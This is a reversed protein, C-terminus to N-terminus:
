GKAEESLWGFDVRVAAGAGAEFEVKRLLAGPIWLLVGTKWGCTQTLTFVILFL